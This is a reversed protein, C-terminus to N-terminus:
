EFKYIKIGGDFITEYTMYKRENFYNFISNNTDYLESRVIVLWINKELYDGLLGNEDTSTTITSDDCCVAQYNLSIINSNEFNCTYINKKSFCEKDYYFTFSDQHYYPEIIIYEDEKVNDKLFSTANRWADKDTILYQGAISVISSIVIILLILKITNKRHKESFKSILFAFLIYLAPTSFLFYRTHYLPSAFMSFTITIIMPLLAWVFLIGPTKLEKKWKPNNSLQDYLVIATFVLFMALLLINGFFDYFSWYVISLTPKQIWSINGTRQIQTMLIPLWPTFFVFFVLQLSIWCLLNRLKKRNMILYCVNQVIIALFAFLHTYIMLLSFLVYLIVSKRNMKDILDFYFYFSLMTLFVFLTYLRAEQSYYVSITSFAMIIASYLGIKENFLKRGLLFIIYVSAVGFIVSLFRTSTESNGFAHVWPNLLTIYLPLHVDNRVMEMSESFPAQAQRISISEDLWYSELGLGWVRFFLALILVSILILNFLSKKNVPPVKM